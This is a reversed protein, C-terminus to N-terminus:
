ALRHLLGLLRDRDERGLRAEWRAEHAHLVEDAQRLLAAGDATLHLAAVRRDHAVARREVLGRGDLEALLPVFNARKIGLARGIGTARAGPNHRM